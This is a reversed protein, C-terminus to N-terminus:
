PSPFIENFIINRYALKSYKQRGTCIHGDSKLYCSCIWIWVPKPKSSIKRLYIRYARFSFGNLGSTTASKIWNLLAEENLSECAASIRFSIERLITRSLPLTKNISSVTKMQPIRTRPLKNQSLSHLFTNQHSLPKIDPDMIDFEFPRTKKYFQSM